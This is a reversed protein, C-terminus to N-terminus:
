STLIYTLLYTPLVFVPAANLSDQLAFNIQVATNSM